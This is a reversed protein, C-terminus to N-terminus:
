GDKRQEKQMANGTQQPEMQWGGGLAGFLSVLAQLRAFRAQVLADEASFMAAETNLVTLISVVGSKLQALAIDHARRATAAATEQRRTQEETQRVAVLSDEVNGLASFVAKRYSAVLEDYRAQTFEYRGQLAGGQFIPQTLSAGVAFVHSQSSIANALALSAFGASGTLEISPFFAARAARINANAAMLNAEAEAVDPRRALLESPLGAGIGPGSLTAMSGQPAELAEPARGILLALAHVTQSLQQELSPVSASL